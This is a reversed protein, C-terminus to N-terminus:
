ELRSGRQSSREGGVEKGRGDVLTYRLKRRIEKPVHFGFQRIRGLEISSDGEALIRSLDKKGYTTVNFSEMTNDEHIILKPLISVAYQRLEMRKVRGVSITKEQALVASVQEEELAHLKLEEVECDEHIILKSLISVAYERFEVRKLRGVRFTKEQELVAAVHEKEKAHLRLYEVECDEHSLEPLISVGYDKLWISRLGGDFFVQDQKLVAAVHENRSADVWLREVAFDKHIRLKPLIRVAYGNFGMGRVRGVCFPNTQEVVAAVHEERSAYLSLREVIFSERIRIKPLIGVAYEKLNINKFMGVCLTQDQKLVAAVHKNRSADVLLGEVEFDKHPRLKPLISVAYDKLTIEKVRGVCFPKKKGLVAAVHEERSADLILEGVRCFIDAEYVRMKTIVGVAYGGLSMNEVSGVCFMQDHKLIGAVHEKESAFLILNGVRCDESIRLKPVINILDTNYLSFRGLVCGIS